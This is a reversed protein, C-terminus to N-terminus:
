KACNSSDCNLRSSSLTDANQAPPRSWRRSIAPFGTAPKVVVAFRAGCNSARQQPTPCSGLTSSFQFFYFHFVPPCSSPFIPLHSSLLIPPHSGCGIGECYSGAILDDRSLSLAPM